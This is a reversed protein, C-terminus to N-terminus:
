DDRLARHQEKNRDGEPDPAPDPEVGAVTDELRVPEPLTRYDPNTMGGDHCAPPRAVLSEHDPTRRGSPAM